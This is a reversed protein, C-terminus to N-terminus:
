KTRRVIRTVNREFNDMSVKARGLADKLKIFYFKLMFSDLSVFFVPPQPQPQGLQLQLPLQLQLM